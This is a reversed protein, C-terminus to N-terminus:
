HARGSVRAPELLRAAAALALRDATVHLEARLRDAEGEIEVRALQVLRAAETRAQAKLTDAIEAGIRDAEALVQASKARAAARIDRARQEALEIDRRGREAATEGDAMQRRREAMQRMMPDWLLRKMAWVLTAFTLVQILLTANIGM